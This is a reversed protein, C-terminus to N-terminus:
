RLKRTIEPSDNDMTENVLGNYYHFSNDLDYLIVWKMLQSVMPESLSLRHSDDLGPVKKLYVEFLLNLYHRKVVFPIADSFLSDLLEESEIM